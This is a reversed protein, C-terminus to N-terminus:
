LRPMYTKLAYWTSAAAVLCLLLLMKLLEWLSNAALYQTLVDGVGLLVNEAGTTGQFVGAIVAHWQFLLIVFLVFAFLVGSASLLISEGYFPGQIVRRDAGVLQMIQIEDRRTFLLIRNTNFLILSAIALFLVYLVIFIVQASTTVASFNKIRSLQEDFYSFDVTAAYKPDKLLASIRAPDVNAVNKIIMVPELVNEGEYSQVVSVTQDILEPITTSDKVLKLAEQSTMLQVDAGLLQLGTKLEAVVANDVSVGQKLFVTFEVNRQLNEVSRNLIVGGSNVVFLFFSVLLVVSLAGLSLLSNRSISTWTLGFLRSIM